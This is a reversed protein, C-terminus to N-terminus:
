SLRQMRYRILNLFLVLNYVTCSYVVSSRSTISIYGPQEQSYAINRPMCCARKKRRKGEGAKLLPLCNKTVRLTGFLNVEVQKEIQDWTQWDFEGCVCVGANNILAYLGPFFLFMLQLSKILLDLYWLYALRRETLGEWLCMLQLM